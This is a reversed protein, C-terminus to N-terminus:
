PGPASSTRRSEPTRRFTQTQNDELPTAAPHPSVYTPEALREVGKNSLIPPAALNYVMAM